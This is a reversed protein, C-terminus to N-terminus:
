DPTVSTVDPKDDRLAARVTAGHEEAFKRMWNVLYSKMFLPVKESFLKGEGEAPHDDFQEVDACLAELAKLARERERRM